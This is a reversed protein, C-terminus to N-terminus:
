PMDRDVPPGGLSVRILEDVLPAICTRCTQPRPSEALPPQPGRGPGCLPVVGSAPWHYHYAGGCLEWAGHSRERDRM